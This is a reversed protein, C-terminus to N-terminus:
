SGIELELMAEVYTVVDPGVLVDLDSTFVTAMQGTTRKLILPYEGDTRAGRSCQAGQRCVADVLDGLRMAGPVM